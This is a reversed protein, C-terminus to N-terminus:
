PEPFAIWSLAGDNATLIYHGDSPPAPVGSGPPAPAPTNGTAEGFVGARHERYMALLSQAGSIRLANAAQPDSPDSDYMWGALRVLAANHIDDPAEPAYDVVCHSAAKLALNVVLMIRPDVADAAPAARLVVALDGATITVAM